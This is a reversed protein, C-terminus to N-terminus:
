SNRRRRRILGFGLLATGFIALSAPEPVRADLQASLTAGCTSRSCDGLDIEYVITESFPTTLDAVQNQDIVATAVNAAQTALLHETGFPTDTSDWFTKFTVSTVTAVPDLWDFNSVFTVAGSPSTLGSETIRIFLQCGTTACASSTSSVGLTTQLHPMDFPPTGTGSSVDVHASGVTGIFLASGDSTSVGASSAAVTVDGTEQYQINVPLAHAASAWFLAGVAASAFGFLHHKMQWVGEHFRFQRDYFALM